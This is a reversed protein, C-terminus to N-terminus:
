KKNILNWWFQYQNEYKSKATEKRMLVILNYMKDLMIDLDLLANRAIAMSENRDIKQCLEIFTDYRPHLENKEGSLMEFMMQYIALTSYKNRKKGSLRPM